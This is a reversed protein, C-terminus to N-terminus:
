VIAAYAQPIFREGGFLVPLAVPTVRTYMQLAKRLKQWSTFFAWQAFYVECNRVVLYWYQYFFKGPVITIPTLPTLPTLSTLPTSALAFLILFKAFLSQAFAADACRSFLYGEFFVPLAAPTELTCM